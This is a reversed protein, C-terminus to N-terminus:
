FPEGLADASSEGVARGEALRVIRTAVRDLLDREHSAILLTQPLCCLLDMVRARSTDDLGNGPEDLLLVEPNMALVSALAVLRKEGGSLRYTVRDEFGALGVLCLTEVATKRAEDPSLGLNLPGFAVDEIVTPCFLQDDADQFVLGVRRRVDIFDRESTRDVDFVRVNGSQPRELGVIMRLLTTKGCGNAGVLGVREGAQLSLSLGTFVARRPEYAFEIDQLQVLTKM